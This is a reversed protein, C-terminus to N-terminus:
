AHMSTVQHVSSYCHQWIQHPHSSSVQLQTHHQVSLSPLISPGRHHTQSLQIHQQQLTLQMVLYQGSTSDHSGFHSIWAIYFIWPSSSAATSTHVIIKIAILLAILM